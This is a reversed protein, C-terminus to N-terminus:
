KSFGSSFFILGLTFIITLLILTGVGVVLGIKASKDMEIKWGANQIVQVILKRVEESSFNYQYIKGLSIDEKIGFRVGASRKYIQGRFTEIRSGIKPVGAIWSLKFTRDQITVSHSQEKLTILFSYTEKVGQKNFIEYWKADVINLALEISNETTANIRLAHPNNEGALEVLDTMLEERTKTM